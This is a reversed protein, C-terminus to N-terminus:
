GVGAAARDKRLEAAAPERGVPKPATAHTGSVIGAELWQHDGKLVNMALKYLESDNPGYFQDFSVTIREKAERCFVDALQIAAKNGKKALMQARVCVATMAFLEAGIDV